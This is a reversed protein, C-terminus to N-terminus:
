VRLEIYVDGSGASHGIMVIRLQAQDALRLVGEGAKFALTALDPAIAISGRLRAPGPRLRGPDGEIVYSVAGSYGAFRVHGDGPFLPLQKRRIGAFAM